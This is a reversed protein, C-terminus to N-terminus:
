LGHLNMCRPLPVNLGSRAFHKMIPTFENIFPQPGPKL